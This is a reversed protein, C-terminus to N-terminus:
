AGRVMALDRAIDPSSKQCPPENSRQTQTQIPKLPAPAGKKKSITRSRQPPPRGTVRDHRLASGGRLRACGRASGAGHRVWRVDRWSWSRIRVDRLGDGGEGSEGSESLWLKCVWGGVLWGVIPFWFGFGSRIEGRGEASVGRRGCGCGAWAPGRASCVYRIM